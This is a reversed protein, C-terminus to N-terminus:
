QKVFQSKFYEIYSSLKSDSIGFNFLDFKYFTNDNTVIILNSNYGRRAPITYIFTGQITDWDFYKGAIILGNGDIIIKYNMKRNIFPFYISIFILLLLFLSSLIFFILPFRGESMGRIFQYAFWLEFLIVPTIFIRKLLSPKIVIIDKQKKHPLDESLSSTSEFNQQLPFIRLIRPGRKREKELFDNILEQSIM